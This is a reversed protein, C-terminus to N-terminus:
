EEEGSDGNGQQDRRLFEQLEEREAGSLGKVRDKAAIGKMREEAPLGKMREESNMREMFRDVLDRRYDEITYSMNIGEIGYQELLDNIINSTEDSHRRFNRTGYEVNEASASFLHLPANHEKQPLDRVVIVRIPREGWNVDFVGAQIEEVGNYALLKVPRRATVAYLRFNEMPLLENYSPSTQKRYNAFHGFLEYLEGCGLVNRHSKFTLLNHDALDELGDPLRLDLHEGTRRIILVDLLQRQLALNREIDVVFPSGSFVDELILGFLRHWEIM